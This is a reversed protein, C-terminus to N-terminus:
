LLNGMIGLREHRGFAAVIARDAEATPIKEQELMWPGAVVAVLAAQEDTTLCGHSVSCDRKGPVALHKWRLWATQDMLLSQVHPFTSRLSSLIGYGAEDCDGWYAIESAAMWKCGALLSSAKGSGFIALTEPVKPLCFFVDRNEVVLVHPISWKLGAFTPAPIACDSVPWCVRARLADDLFRFRVQPPEVLLHFREDFTTAAGNVCDGLVVDLLERLIGAHEEIFKTSIPVPLQRPYCRPMPHTKFYACVAVLGDWDPLYDVIRHAKSCLWPELAPCRERAERLAERFSKLETSRGLATALDEASGFELRVPWRQRGWKRTEIEEWDMRWNHNAAALSEIETRLVVFDATPRPRGFPIRLPFIIEGRAEARLVSPWRRSAKDLIESPKLM